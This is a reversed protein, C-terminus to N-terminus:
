SFHKDDGHLPRLMIFGDELLAKRFDRYEKRAIDTDVPLDFMVLLWM